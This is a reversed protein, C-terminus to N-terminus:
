APLLSVVRDIGALDPTVEIGATPYLGRLLTSVAEGQGQGIELLLCGDPNLKEGAIACLRRIVGLGDAGGDLALWPEFGLTNVGSLEPERVYPLNAVILDAKEPLPELLDGELLVVRDAVGHRRCNDLAIELAPASIDTAYIRAQPLNVALSVAIAGSGTGAEAIVPFFRRRAIELARDVLLESEPRPILVGPGVRFDLGYFERHGTIYAAPENNLRREIYSFFQEKQGPTLERGPELYLRVRDTQLVHRLLLEAELHSDEINGATLIERARSLAQKVTL